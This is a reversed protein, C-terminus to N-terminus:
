PRRSADSGGPRTMTTYKVGGVSMIRAEVGNAELAAKLQDIIAREVRGELDVRGLQGIVSAWGGRHKEVLEEINTIDIVIM